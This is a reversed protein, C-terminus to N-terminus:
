KIQRRKLLLLQGARFSRSRDRAIAKLCTRLLYAEMRNRLWEYTPHKGEAMQRDYYAVDEMLVNSKEMKPLLIVRLM